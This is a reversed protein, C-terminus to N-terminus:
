AWSRREGDVESLIGNNEVCLTRDVTVVAIAVVVTESM